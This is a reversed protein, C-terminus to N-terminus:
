YNYDYELVAYLIVTGDSSAQARMNRDMTITTGPTYYVRGTPDDWPDYCIFSWGRFIFGGGFTYGNSPLTVTDGFEINNIDSTSGGSSFGNNDSFTFTYYERDVVCRVANYVTKSDQSWGGYEGDVSGVLPDYSAGSTWYSNFGVVFNNPYSPGSWDEWAAGIIDRLTDFEGAPKDYYMYDENNDKPLHWGNPCISGIAVGYQETSYTGNGATATYWNYSVGYEYKNDYRDKTVSRDIADANFGVSDVCDSDSDDDCGVYVSPYNVLGSVFASTPGDTNQATITAQTPDLRLNETMWCNGDSYKLVSYTNSDRTDMLAIIDGASMTSCVGNAAFSQMTYNSDAEVWVAYLTIDGGPLNSTVVFSQEPGYITSVGDGPSAASNLSWGVFAYGNKAFDNGNLVVTDGVSLYDITFDMSGSDAGNGNYVLSYTAEWITYLSMDSVPTIYNSPGYVRTQASPSTDWGALRYNTRTWGTESGYVSQGAKVKVVKTEGTYTNNFTVFYLDDWQAYLTVEGNVLATKIDSAAAGAKVTIGSGDARTNWERFLKHDNPVAFSNSDILTSNLEVNNRSAMSGSGGNANYHITGSGNSAICRVSCGYYKSLENIWFGSNNLSAEKSHEFSYRNGDDALKTATWYFGRTGVSSLSSGNVYGGLQFSYPSAIATSYNSLGAAVILGWYHGDSPLDWGVPCISTTLVLDPLDADLLVAGAWSYYGGNATGVRIQKKLYNDYTESVTFSNTQAPLLGYENIDTDDPSLMMVSARGVDLNQTMWVSGDDLLSITYQKNDRADKLTYTQKSVMTSKVTDNMDQLCVANSIATANENCDNNEWIAYLVTSTKITTFSDGPSYENGDEDIWYKFSFGIRQPITSSITFTYVKNASVTVSPIVTSGGNMEYELTFTSVSNEAICRVSIGDSQNHDAVEVRPSFNNGHLMFSNGTDTFYGGQAWYGTGIGSTPYVQRGKFSSKSYWGSVVFNNPYTLALQYPVGDKDSLSYGSGTYTNDWANMLGHYDQSLSANTRTEGTPMRWGIPCISSGSLRTMGAMATYNNYMVGYSYWSVNSVDNVNYSADLSRDINSTNYSVVSRCPDQGSSTSAVCWEGNNPTATAAKTLFEATPNDTNLVSLNAEGIDLRLNEIMWCKGDALKAVAYVNGDRTDTLGIVDNVSLSPCGMWGQLNGSSEVWNAYLLLVGSEPMTIYENPGYNTGTGDPRTNWSAFGYGDKSYNPPVLHVGANAAAEQIEMTGEDENNGDYHIGPICTMDMVIQYNIFGEDAFSYSGIPMNYDVSVGYYIPVVANIDSNPSATDVTSKLVVGSGSLATFVGNKSNATLSYGWKNTNNSHNLASTGDVPTFYTGLTNNTDDGDLYLNNDTPGSIVFNYGARCDSVIGVNDEVVATGVGDSMRPAVNVMVEGSTTIELSFAAAPESNGILSLLFIFFLIWCLGGFFSGRAVSKHM